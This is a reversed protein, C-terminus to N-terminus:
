VERLECESKLHGEVLRRQMMVGCGNSCHLETFPCGKKSNIDKAVHQELSRLEGTWDCGLSKNRCFVMLDGVCRETKKDPVFTFPVKNCCPCRTTDLLKTHIYRHLCTACFTNGCCENAQQPDRAPLYCIKCLLDVDPPTKVFDCDFGMDENVNPVNTQLKHHHNDQIHPISSHGNHDDFDDIDKQEQLFSITSM